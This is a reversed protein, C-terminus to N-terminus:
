NKSYSSIIDRIVSEPLHKGNFKVKELENLQLDIIKQQSQPKGNEYFVQGIKIYENNRYKRYVKHFGTMKDDKWEGQYLDTKSNDKVYYKGNKDHRMGHNWEGEYVKSGLNYTMKGTGHPDNNKDIQGYYHNNKDIVNKYTEKSNKPSTGGLNRKSKNNCNQKKSTKNKKM